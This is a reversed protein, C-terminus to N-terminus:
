RPNPSPRGIDPTLDPKGRIVGPTGPERVAPSPPGVSSPPRVGPGSSPNGSPGASPGSVVPGIYGRNRGCCSDNFYAIFCSYSGGYPSGWGFYSPVFTWCHSRPNFVWVGGRGLASALFWDNNFSALFTNLSRTPIRRNAQALTEARQKSWEGFDDKQKDAKELKAVSFTNASFVVKKGGKVKTQSNALLVRGKKVFLQTADGPVVNVRYLGRRVIVMRAHPTAINIMLETSEAGTAEVIATGQDVRVELNELSNDTLEFESDEAVRLYSGPNLLMEVRGESGTRVIDGAQLDDTVNLLQWESSGKPKMTVQGTVANIGGAKASIVFKERNQARSTTAVCAMLAATFLALSFLKSAKRM